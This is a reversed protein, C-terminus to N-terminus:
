PTSYAVKGAADPSPRSGQGAVNDQIWQLKVAVKRRLAREHRLAWIECGRRGDYFTTCRRTILPARVGDELHLPALWAGHIRQHMTAVQEGRLFLGDPSRGPPRAAELLLRRADPDPDALQGHATLMPRGRRVARYMPSANVLVMAHNCYRLLGRM